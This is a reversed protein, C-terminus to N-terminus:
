SGTRFPTRQFKKDGIARCPRSLVVIDPRRYVAFDDHGWVHARVVVTIAAAHVLANDRM